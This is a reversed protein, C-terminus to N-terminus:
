ASCRGVGCVTGVLRPMPAMVITTPKPYHSGPPCAGLGTAGTACILQGVLANNISTGRRDCPPGDVSPREIHVPSSTLKGGLAANGFFCNRPTTVAPAPRRHGPRQGHYLPVRERMRPLGRGCGPAPTGGRGDDTILVDLWQPTQTVTVTAHCPGAHKLINTLAEQIIRYAALAVGPPLGGPDADVRLDLPVGAAQV